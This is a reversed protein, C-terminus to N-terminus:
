HNSMGDVILTIKVEKGGRPNKLISCLRKREKPDPIKLPSDEQHIAYLYCEEILTNIVIQRHGDSIQFMKNLLLNTPHHVLWLHYLM